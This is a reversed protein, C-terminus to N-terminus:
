PPAGTRNWYVDSNDVFSVRKNRNEWQSELADITIFHVFPEFERSTDANLSKGKVFGLVMYNRGTIIGEIVEILCPVLLMSFTKFLFVQPHFAVVILIVFETAEGNIKKSDNIQIRSFAASCNEFEAETPVV